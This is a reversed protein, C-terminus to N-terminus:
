AKDANLSWDIFNGYIAIKDVIIYSVISLFALYVFFM